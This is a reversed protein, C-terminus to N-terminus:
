RSLMKETVTLSDPGANVGGGVDGALLEGVEVRGNASVGLEDVDARVLLALQATVASL